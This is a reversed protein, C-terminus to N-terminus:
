ITLKASCQCHGGLQRAILSTAKPSNGKMWGMLRQDYVLMFPPLELNSLSQSKITIATAFVLM